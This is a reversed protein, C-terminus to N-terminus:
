SQSTQCVLTDGIPSTSLCYLNATVNVSRAGLTFFIQFSQSAIGLAKRLDRLYSPPLYQSSSLALHCSPFPAFLPFCTSTSSLGTKTEARTQHKRLKACSSLQWLRAIYQSSGSAVRNRRINWAQTITGICPWAANSCGGTCSGGTYV